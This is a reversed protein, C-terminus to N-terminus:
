EKYTGDVIQEITDQPISTVDDTKAELKGIATVLSDNSTIDSITSAKEYTGLSTVKTAAHEAPNFETPKGGIGAWVSSDVAVREIKGIAANLTDTVSIPSYETGITYGTMLTIDASTHTHSGFGRDIDDIRKDIKGIATLVSDTPGVTGSLKKYGDMTIISADYTAPKNKVGEWEVSDAVKAHEANSANEALMARGASYEVFAEESGPTTGDTSLKTDDVVLYMVKTDIEQVSDGTQIQEKTLKLRAAKDKVKILTDIAGNPLNSLPIVGILGTASAKEAYSAKTAYKSVSADIAQGVVLKGNQLAKTYQNLGSADLFLKSM